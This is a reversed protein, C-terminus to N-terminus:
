HLVAKLLILVFGLLGTFFGSGIAAWTALGARRGALFGLGTLTAVCVGLAANLATANSAGAAWAILLVLLPTYSAQVMPWGHGFVGLVRQRTLKEGRLNGALLESWREALWYAILTVVITWAVDSLEDSPEAAALVSAGVITGFIGAPAQRQRWWRQVPGEPAPDPVGPRGAEARPTETRAAARPAAEPAARAGAKADAGPVARAGAKAAAGPVARAGAKAAAGPVARAAAKAAAKAAAAAETPTAAPAAFARQNRGPEDPVPATSV